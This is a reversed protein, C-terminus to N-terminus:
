NEGHLLGEAYEKADKLSHKEAVEKGLFIVFFSTHDWTGPRGNAHPIHRKRSEITFPHNVAEYTVTTGEANVTKGMKEWKM